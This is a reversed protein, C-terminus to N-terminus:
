GGTFTRSIYFWKVTLPNTKKRREAQCGCVCVCICASPMLINLTPLWVAAKVTRLRDPGLRLFGADAM